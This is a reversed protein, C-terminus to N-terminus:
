KTGLAGRLKDALSGGFSAGPATKEQRQTYERVEEAEQAHAVAKKSLRIRRGASDIELVVVEVESGIPFAKRVDSDNAVGTESMPIVGTRGPGLFVFVGFHEVRDVKGKVRAGAVIDAARPRAAAPGGRAQAPGGGGPPPPAPGRPPPRGGWTAAM